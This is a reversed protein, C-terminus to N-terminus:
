KIKTESSKASKWNTQKLLFLCCNKEINEDISESHNCWPIVVCAKTQGRDIKLAIYM